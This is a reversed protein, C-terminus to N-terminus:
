WFDGCSCAGNRFHHFRKYDRVIIERQLFRSALKIFTHCDGCIRLNKMIRIPTKEHTVLLAYAMALRESHGNLLEVKESEEVNQLVYKTQAVYGGEMELKKTVYALNRYIEDCCQHSKDHAVFTHVKNGIEIWSCAPEKKMGMGKMTFRVEEVDEWKDRAAYANSVLVYNGPNQPKLDLLKKAAIDGLEKNSHVHCSSLLSCWLAETPGSKMTKLTQFAEELYNARGLLDVLCAYHEPWPELNYKMEMIKFIRKGDEVLSSHSCAYLLVLFTIHDPIINEEEMKRFLGIAEVGHGHMGFAHIMSTWLVLDAESVSSFIRKSDELAGCCAYM